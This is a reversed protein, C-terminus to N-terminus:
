LSFSIGHYGHARGTKKVVEYDAIIGREKWTDFCLCLYDRYRKKEAKSRDGLGNKKFTDEFTITRCMQPHSRCEEVRRRTYNALAMRDPSAKGGMSMSELRYSLLQNNKVKAVTVLPSEGLFEVVTRTSGNVSKGSVFKAPLVSGFLEVKRAKYGMSLLGEMGIRITNGILHELSLRIREDEKDNGKDDEGHYGDYGVQNNDPVMPTLDVLVQEPIAVDWILAVQLLGIIHEVGIAIEAAVIVVQERGADQLQDVHSGDADLLAQVLIALRLVIEDDLFQCVALLLGLQQLHNM